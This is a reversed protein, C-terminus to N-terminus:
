EYAPALGLVGLAAREAFIADLPTQYGLHNVVGDMAGLFAIATARVPPGPPIAGTTRGVQILGVMIVAFDEISANIAKEVPHDTEAFETKLRTLVRAPHHRPYAAYARALAILTGVPDAPDEFLLAVEDQWSKSVWEILGLALQEKNAFLHYLAGRTYGADSAVRDLVMDAYGYKAINQAAAVMLSERTRARREVQSQRESASAAPSTLKRDPYPDDKSAVGTPVCRETAEATVVQMMYMCSGM